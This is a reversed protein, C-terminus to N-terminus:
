GSKKLLETYRAQMEEPSVAEIHQGLMWQHGFPDILKSSREGYFQTKPPSLIKAGAQEARATMEDVNDVHLHLMSGVGGFALPSQIGREPFEEALMVMAKGLKLEVHGLRGSPEALRMVEEAGFVHKYFEVAAPANRVILYPFLEGIKNENDAM